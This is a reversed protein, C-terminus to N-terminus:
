KKLKSIFFALSAIIIISAGSSLNLYFAMVLGLVCFGFAFLASFIMMQALTRSFREAISPAITLLAIVLVLGVVQISMVVCLSILVSLAYYLAKVNVGRLSAFERDFSFACLRSYFLIAFLVFIVDFGGMILLDGSGVALISGFLYSMLDSTYGESLESFVIGLAMGFAWIAGILSDFRESKEFSFYAIILGLIVASALAGLFPAFGAFFAVGVGAYAGHAVGGAAFSMKNIVVLSGIVGAAISVLFGAILANQVFNLSLIEFM